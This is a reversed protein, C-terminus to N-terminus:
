DATLDLHSNILDLMEDFTTGALALTQRIADLKDRAESTFLGGETNGLTDLHTFVELQMRQIHQLLRAQEEMVVQQNARDNIRQINLETAM